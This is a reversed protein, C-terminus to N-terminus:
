SVQSKKLNRILFRISHLHEFLDLEIPLPFGTMLSFLIEASLTSFTIGRSGLALCLWEGPLPELPPLGALSKLGVRLARAYQRSIMAEDFLPGILPLKDPTSLRFGTKSSVLSDKNLELFPPWKKKAEDLLIEADVQEDQSLINKAQYTAGLLHFEHGTIEPALPTAYGQDVLPYLLERSKLTPRVLVTQGRIARLPLKDLHSHSFKQHPLKLDAGMAYVIHQFDHTENIQDIKLILRDNLHSIEKVSKPIFEINPHDLRKKCLVDPRLMGCEPLFVSGNQIKYFEPPYGSGHLGEELNEDSKLVGLRHPINLSKLEQRFSMFAAQSFRSIPNPVRSLQVDFLGASNSSARTGIGNGDFVKVRYGNEALKRAIASGSLGAGIIAIPDAKSKLKRLFQGSFWPPLISPAQSGRFIARISERKEGFGPRKEIEFGSREILNRVWTAATFSSGIAGPASLRASEQFVLESFADSNRKPAFGDWYWHQASFELNPLVESVDGLVLDLIVRGGLFSLRHIGPSLMPYQSLLADSVTKLEPYASYLQFLDSLLVPYKEISIYHLCQEANAHKIFSQFSLLFNLGVGFGIEAITITQTGTKLSQLYGSGELYLYHSEDM